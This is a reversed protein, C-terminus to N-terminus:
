TQQLIRATENGAGELVVAALVVAVVRFVEVVAVSDAVEAPGAVEPIDVGAAPGFVVPIVV